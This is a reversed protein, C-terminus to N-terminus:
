KGRLLDKIQKRLEPLERIAAQTKLWERHPLAPVGSYVGPTDFSTMVGAGGAFMVGSAITLHDAIAVRGGAMVFDGLKTSGSIGTQGAAICHKGMRVNHAIQVLNDIKTGEGIVTNGLTGRDVATNAGIEVNNELVVIGVQPVKEHGARTNIYGFGDAGIVSGSNIAVNDGLVCGDYIVVHPHLVCNKGITVNDGIVVHNHIVTGDGVVANEGVCAFHGVRVPNGVRASAAIRADPSIFHEVPKEPYFHRLLLMLARKPDQVKIAPLPLKPADLPCVFAAAGQAVAKKVANGMLVCVCGSRQDDPLCIGSIKADSGVLEGGVLAAAESLQIVKEM